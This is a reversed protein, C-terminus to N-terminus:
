HTDNLYQILHSLNKRKSLVHKISMATGRISLSQQLTNWEDEYAPCRMLYHHVSENPHSCKPWAPSEVCHINFLHHNLRIHGTHLQVLISTIKHPLSTALKRYRHAAQQATASDITHFRSFHPSKRWARDANRKQKAYHERLLSTKNHSISKCLPAPLNWPKSVDGRAAAKAESDAAENGAIGQHGPVWRVTISINPHQRLVMDICKHFLDFIHHSPTLRALATAQIAAMSDISFTASKVNTM